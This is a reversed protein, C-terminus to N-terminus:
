ELLILSCLLERFNTSINPMQITCCRSCYTRSALFIGYYRVYGETINDIGFVFKGLVSDIMIKTEKEGELYAYNKERKM